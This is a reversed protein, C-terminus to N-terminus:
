LAGVVTPSYRVLIAHAAAPISLPLSVDCARREVCKEQWRRLFDYGLEFEGTSTTYIVHIRHPLRFFERMSRLLADLQCARDKSFVIIDLAANEAAEGWIPPLPNDQPLLQRGPMLALNELDPGGGPGM